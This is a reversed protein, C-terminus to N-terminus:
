LILHANSLSPCETGYSTIHTEQISFCMDSLIHTGPLPFEMIYNIPLWMQIYYRSSRILPACEREAILPLKLM